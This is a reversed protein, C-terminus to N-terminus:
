ETLLHENEDRLALEHRVALGLAYYAGSKVNVGIKTLQPGCSLDWVKQEILSLHCWKLNSLRKAEILETKSGDIYHNFLHRTNPEIQRLKYLYTNAMQQLLNSDISDRYFDDRSIGMLAASVLGGHLIDDPKTEVDSIEDFNWFLIEKALNLKPENISDANRKFYQLQDSVIKRYRSVTQPNQEAVENALVIYQMASSMTLARNYAIPQGVKKLPVEQIRALDPNNAHIFLGKGQDFWLPSLAFMEVSETADSLFRLASNRYSEGNSGVLGVLKDEKLILWSAYAIPQLINATMLINTFAVPQNNISWKKYLSPWVPLVNGDIYLTLKEHRDNRKALMLDIREIMTNLLRPDGTVQYLRGLGMLYNAYNWSFGRSYNDKILAAKSVIELYKTIESESALGLSKELKYHTEAFLSFSSLFIVLQIFIIISKRM